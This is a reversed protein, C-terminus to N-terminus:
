PSCAPSARRSTAWKKEGNLIYHQGDASLECRTEQGGADCGVNRSAVPLVRQAYEKALRRCGAADEARRHRLAHDGQLRDVPARSVMVATSAAPAASANSCATTAPSAWGLRRRVRAPITMGLVGLDFLREIAWDPIEQEQDIEVSPHEHKLYADLEEILRDTKEKQDASPTPYPFALDYRFRGWFLNKVFGMTSPEPGMMAEADAIMKRDNASVGKIDALSATTSM